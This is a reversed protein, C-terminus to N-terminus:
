KGAKKGPRSLWGETLVIIVSLTFGGLFGAIGFIERNIVVVGVMVALLAIKAFYTSIGKAVAKPAALQGTVNKRVTLAVAALNFGGIALGAAAGNATRSDTIFYLSCAALLAAGFFVLIRKINM